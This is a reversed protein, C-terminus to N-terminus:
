LQKGELDVQCVRRFVTPKESFYVESVSVGDADVPFVALVSNDSAGSLQDQYEAKYHKNHTRIVIGREGPPLDTRRLREFVVPVDFLLLQLFLQEDFERVLRAYLQQKCKQKAERDGYIKIAGVAKLPNEDKLADAEDVGRHVQKSLAALKAELAECEKGTTGALKLWLYQLMIM